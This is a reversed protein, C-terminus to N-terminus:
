EDLNESETLPPAAAKMTNEAENEYVEITKSKDVSLTINVFREGKGVLNSLPSVVEIYTKNEELQSVLKETEERSATKARLSIETVDKFGQDNYNINVLTVGNKNYVMLNRMIESVPISDNLITGIQNRLQQREQRAQSIQTLYPNLSQEGLIVIEKSTIHYELYDKATDIGMKLTTAILFIVLLTAYTKLKPTIKALNLEEKHAVPLLNFDNKENLQHGKLCLGIGELGDNEIEYPIQTFEPSTKIVVGPYLEILLEHVGPLVSFEGTLYITKIELPENSATIASLQKIKNKLIEVYPKCSIMLENKQSESLGQGKKTNIFMEKLEQTTSLNLMAKLKDILAHKEGKLVLKYINGTAPNVSLLDRDLTMNLILSDGDTNNLKNNFSRILCNVNIDIGIVEINIDKLTKIIPEVINIHTAVFNITLEKDNDNPHAVKYDFVAQSLDIPIFDKAAEKVYETDELKEKPITIQHQFIQDESLAIYVKDAKIPGGVGSALLEKIGAQFSEPDLIVCENEVIGQQLSVKAYNTVVPGGNYEVEIAAIGDNNFILGVSKTKSISM